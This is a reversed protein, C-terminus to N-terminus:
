DEYLVTVRSFHPWERIDTVEYVRGDIVISDLASVQVGPPLFVKRRDGEIQGGVTEADTADLPQVSAAADTDVEVTETEGFHNITTTVTRVVVSDPFRRPALRRTALTSM